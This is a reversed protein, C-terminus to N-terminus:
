LTPERQCEVHGCQCTGTDPDTEARECHDSCFQGGSLVPCHCSRNACKDTQDSM